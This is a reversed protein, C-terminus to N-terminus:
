LLKTLPSNLPGSLYLQSVLAIRIPMMDWERLSVRVIPHDRLLKSPTEAFFVAYPKHTTALKITNGEMKNFLEKTDVFITSYEALLNIVGTELKVDNTIADRIERGNLQGFTMEHLRQSTTLKSVESSKSNHAM